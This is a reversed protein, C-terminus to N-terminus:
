ARAPWGSRLRDPQRHMEDIFDRLHAADRQLHALLEAAFRGIVLKAFLDANGRAFDRLELGNRNTRSREVRRDAVIIRGLEAFDDAVFFRLRRELQQAVLVQAVFDAAQEVHEVIALRLIMKERKPSSPPLGFVSSSTPLFNPTVRSRIRCNCFM